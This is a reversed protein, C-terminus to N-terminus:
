GRASVRTPHLSNNRRRQWIGWLEYIAFGWLVANAAVMSYWCWHHHLEVPMYDWVLFCPLTLVIYAWDVCKDLFPVPGRPGFFRNVALHVSWQFIAWTVCFQGLAIMGIVLVKKM